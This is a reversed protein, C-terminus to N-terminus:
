PLAIQDITIGCFCSNTAGSLWNPLYGRNNEAEDMFHALRQRKQGCDFVVMGAHFRQGNNRNKRQERNGPRSVRILNQGAIQLGRLRRISGPRNAVANKPAFVISETSWNRLNILTGATTAAKRIADCIEPPTVVRVAAISIAV